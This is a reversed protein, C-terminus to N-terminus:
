HRYYNRANRCFSRLQAVMYDRRSHGIRLGRMSKGRRFFKTRKECLGAIAM